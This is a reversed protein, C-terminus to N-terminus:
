DKGRCEAQVREYEELTDVEQQRAKREESMTRSFGRVVGQVHDQLRQQEAPISRISMPGHTDGLERVAGYVADTILPKYKAVIQRDVEIHKREHERIARYMCGDKKYESAIYVTPKINITVKVTDFYLCGFNFRPYTEQMIRLNQSISVEGAMLGGVHTQVGADYPSVTDYQFNDLQSQSKSHDYRVKTDTAIVTIEPTKKIQCKADAAALHLYGAALYDLGIL